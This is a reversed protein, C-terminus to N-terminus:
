STVYEWGKSSQITATGRESECRREGDPKSCVKEWSDTILTLEEGPPM